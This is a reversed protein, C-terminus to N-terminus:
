RIGALWLCARSLISLLLLHSVAGLIAEVLLVIFSLPMIVCELILAYLLRKVIADQPHRETFMRDVQHTLDFVQDIHEILLSWAERISDCCCCAQRFEQRVTVDQQDDIGGDGRREVDVHQGM